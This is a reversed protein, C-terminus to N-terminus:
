QNQSFAKLRWDTILINAKRNAGCVTTQFVLSSQGQGFTIKNLDFLGFTWPALHSPPKMKFHSWKNWKWVKGKQNLDKRSLMKSWGNSLLVPWSNFAENIKWQSPKNGTYWTEHQLSLPKRLGKLVCKFLMLVLVSSPRVTM